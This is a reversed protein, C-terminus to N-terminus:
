ECEIRALALAHQSQAPALARGGRFGLAQVLEELALHTTMAYSNRHLYLRYDSM